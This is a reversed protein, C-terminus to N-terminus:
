RWVCRARPPGSCTCRPYAGGPRSLGLSSSWHIIGPHASPPIIHLCLGHDGSPMQSSGQSVGDMGHHCLGTKLPAQAAAGIGPASLVLLGLNITATPSQTPESSRGEVVGLAGLDQLHFGHKQLSGGLDKCSLACPKPLSPRHGPCLLHHGSAPPQTQMGATGGVAM